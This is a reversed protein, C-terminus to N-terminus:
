RPVYGKPLPAPIVLRHALVFLYFAAAFVVLGAIWASLMVPARRGGWSPRVVWAALAGVALAFLLRGYFDAGLGLPHAAFAFRHEVPFYWLLPLPLVSSVFFAGLYGIAFAAPRLGRSM